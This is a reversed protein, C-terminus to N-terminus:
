RGDELARVANEQWPGVDSSPGAIGPRSWALPPIVGHILEAHCELCVDFCVTECIPCACGGPIREGCHRCNVTTSSRARTM